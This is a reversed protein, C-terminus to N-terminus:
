TNEEVWDVILKYTGYSVNSGIINCMNSIYTINLNIRDSSSLIIMRKTEKVTLIAGAIFLYNNPHAYSIFNEVLWRLYILDTVVMNPWIIIKNNLIFIIKFVGVIVLIIAIYYNHYFFNGIFM